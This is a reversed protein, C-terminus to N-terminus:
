RIEGAMVPEVDHWDSDAVGQDDSGIFADDRYRAETCPACVGDGREPSCSCDGRIDPYVFPRACGRCVVHYTENGWDDTTFDQYTTLQIVEM